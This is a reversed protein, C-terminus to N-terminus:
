HLLSTSFLYKYTGQTNHLLFVLVLHSPAKSVSPSLLPPLPTLSPKRSFSRLSSYFTQFIVPHLLSNCAFSITCTIGQTLFSFWENFPYFFTWYSQIIFFTLGLPEVHPWTGPLSWIHLPMNSPLESPKSSQESLLPSDNFLKPM